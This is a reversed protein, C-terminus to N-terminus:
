RERRRLYAAVAIGAVSVIVVGIVAVAGGGSASGGEDDVTTTTTVAGSPVAPETSSTAADTTSSTTSPSAAATTSTTSPATPDPDGITVLPAPREAEEETQIWEIAGVECTQIFPFALTVGPTAPASFAVGFEAEVDADLPGGEYTVVQGDVSGEWGDKAVPQPDTIESPVQFEVKVTPSGECGHQVTFEVTAASGAPVETATPEVHAGAPLALGVAAALGGALAAASRLPLRM